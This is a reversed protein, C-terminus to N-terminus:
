KQEFLTWENKASNWLHTEKLRQDRNTFSVIYVGAKLCKINITNEGSVFEAAQDPKLTTAYGQLIVMRIKRRVETPAQM